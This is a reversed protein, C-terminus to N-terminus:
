ISPLHISLRQILYGPPGKGPLQLRVFALEQEPQRANEEILVTPHVVLQLVERAAELAKDLTASKELVTAQM